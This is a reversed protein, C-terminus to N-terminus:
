NTLNRFPNFLVYNLHRYLDSAQILETHNGAAHLKGNHLLYIRDLSRLTSIRNPIYIITRDEAVQTLTEEIDDNAGNVPPEEVFLVSPERLIARALAIRFEQQSNLREGQEGVITSFGQPLQQIFDYAGARKAADTIQLLSFRSDGCDINEAVEGTFLANSNRVLCAQERLSELTVNRIDHDDFKVHGLEPDYYRVFLGALALTTRPNSALVGFRGGAPFQMTIEDLLREGNVDAVTVHDLEIGVQLRDLGEAGKAQSVRPDRDLYSFIEAASDDAPTLKRPLKLLQVAPFFGCVLSTGLVVIEAISIRAPNPLGIVVLLAGVSVLVMLVLLPGVLMNNIAARFAAKTYSRMNEKFLSDSSEPRSQSTTMPAVRLGELLRGHQQATHETWMATSSGSRKKLWHHMAWIGVALLMAFVALLFNTMAALIVLASFGVVSRPVVEWWAFLGQRVKETQNTFLTEPRLKDLHLWDSSGLRFSQEHINAKLRAAVTIASNHIERYMLYLMLTAFVSFALGVGVLALICYEYKDFFPAFGIPGLRFDELNEIVGQGERNVFLHVLNGLIVVLAPTILATCIGCVAIFIHEATAGTIRRARKLHPWNM